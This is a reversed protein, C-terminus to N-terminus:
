RGMRMLRQGYDISPERLSLNNENGGRLRKYRLLDICTVFDAANRASVGNFKCPVVRSSIPGPSYTVIRLVKM